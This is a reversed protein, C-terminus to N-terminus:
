NRMKETVKKEVNSKRLMDWLEKYVISIRFVKIKGYMNDLIEWFKDTKINQATLFRRSLVSKRFTQCM